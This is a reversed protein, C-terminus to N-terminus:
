LLERDAAAPCIKGIRGKGGRKIGLTVAGKCGKGGGEGRWLGRKIDLLESPHHWDDDDYKTPACLDRIAGARDM